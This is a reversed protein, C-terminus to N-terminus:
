SGLGASIVSSSPATSIPAPQVASAPRVPTKKKERSYIGWAAFAIAAILLVVAFAGWPLGAAADDGAMAQVQFDQTDAGPKSDKDAAATGTAALYDAIVQDEDMGLVRAYARIFGKNFIGGPLQEFHD